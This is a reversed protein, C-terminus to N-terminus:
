ATGAQEKCVRTAEEAELIAMELLYVLMPERIGISLERMERLMVGVFALRAAKFDVEQHGGLAGATLLEGDRNTLKDIPRKSAQM